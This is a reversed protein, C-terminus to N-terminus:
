AVDPAGRPRLRADVSARDLGAIRVRKRRSTLGAVIAVSRKSVGLTRALLDILASNAAGEVPPAQLRVLLAGNRTGSIASVSARPIVQVDIVISGSDAGDAQTQKARTERPRRATTM